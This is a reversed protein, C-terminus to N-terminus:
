TLTMAPRDRGQGHAGVDHMHRVIHWWLRPFGIVPTILFQARQTPTLVSVVHRHLILQQYWPLSPVLHHEWHCPSGWPGGGVLMGWFGLGFSRSGNANDLPMLNHETFQRVRDLYFGVHPTFVLFTVAIFLAASRRTRAAGCLRGPVGDVARGLPDPQAHLDDASARHLRQLQHVRGAAPVDAFLAPPLVSNLFEADDETGFKAHHVM